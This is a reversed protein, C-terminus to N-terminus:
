RSPPIAGPAERDLRLRRNPRAPRRATPLRTSTVGAPWANMTRDPRTVDTASILRDTSALGPASCAASLSAASPHARTEYNRSAARRSGSPRLLSSQALCREASCFWAVIITVDQPRRAARSARTAPVRLALARRPAQAHRAAGPRERTVFALVAVLTVATGLLLPGYGFGGREAHSRRTRLGLRRGLNDTTSTHAPADFARFSMRDPTSPCHTRAM